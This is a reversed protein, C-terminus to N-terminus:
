SARRPKPREARLERLARFRSPSGGAAFHEKAEGAFRDADIETNRGPVQRTRRLFHFAEHAVIWVVAEGEDCLFSVGYVRRWRRTEGGRAQVCEKGVSLLGHPLPPYTGDERAYLPSERTRVGVPFPGKLSCTIRYSPLTKTPYYCYGWVGPPM